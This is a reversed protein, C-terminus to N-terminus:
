TKSLSYLNKLNLTTLTIVDGDAKLTGAYYNLTGITRAEAAPRRHTRSTIAAPLQFISGGEGAVTPTATTDAVNGLTYYIAASGTANTVEVEDHDGEITVVAVTNATLTGRRNAM